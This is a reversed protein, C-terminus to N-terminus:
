VDDDDGEEIGARVHALVAPAVSKEDEQPETRLGALGSIIARLNDLLGDCDECEELHREIRQRATPPLEGDAYASLHRPTWRHDRLFRLRKLPGAM